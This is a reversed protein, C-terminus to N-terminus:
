IKSNHRARLTIQIILHVKFFIYILNAIALLLEQLLVGLNEVNVDKPHESADYKNIPNLLYFRSM